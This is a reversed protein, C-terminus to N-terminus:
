KRKLVDYLPGMMDKDNLQDITEIKDEILSVIREEYTGKCYMLKQQVNSKINARFVRGFTQKTLIGSWNPSIISVRPYKGNTDHLSIGVSGAQIMSIISRRNNTQFNTINRKREKISQTGHILCDTKLLRSLFFMTQRFNVFICVSNGIQLNRIAEQYIMNMKYAEILKITYILFALQCTAKDKKEEVTKIYDEIEEFINKYEKKANYDIYEDRNFVETDFYRGEKFDLLSNYARNIKMRNESEMLCCQIKNEYQQINEMEKINMRSAFKPYMLNKLSVSTNKGYRTIFDYYLEGAINSMTYNYMMPLYTRIDIAKDILTASLLLLKSHYNKYAAWLIHFNNTAPNKCKHAEDFIFMIKRDDNVKHMKYFSHFHFEYRDKRPTSSNPDQDENEDEKPKNQKLYICNLKYLSGDKKIKYYQGRTILEYNSIGLVRINFLRSVQVWDTIVSKPCIIFPIYKYQKCIALSTYTKGTGTDSTDFSIKNNQIPKILRQIHQKQYEFLQVM